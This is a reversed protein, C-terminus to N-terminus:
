SSKPEVETLSESSTRQVTVPRESSKRQLEAPSDPSSTPSGAPRGARRWDGWCWVGVGAMVGVREAPVTGLSATLGRQGKLFARLVKCLPSPKGEGGGRITAVVRFTGVGIPGVGRPCPPPNVLTIFGERSPHCPLGHSGDPISGSRFGTGFALPSCFRSDRFPRRPAEM